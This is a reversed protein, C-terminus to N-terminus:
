KGGKTELYLNLYIVLEELTKVKPVDIGKNRLENAFELLRPPELKNEYLFNTDNLVEYTEGDKVIKGDKFLLVRKTVSLVNDLDHTVIVVTKGQENLANFINLIEKVGAPDLGATPEDAVIVDPEMALIGALAVRRKQGGSLGFPSKELYSEDLGVLKLYKKAREYAEEKKVGFSMPGFAIDQKITESFLQYEAFQFIIGVRKRLDKSKKVKTRFNTEFITKKYTKGFRKKEIEIPYKKRLSFSDIFKINEKTKKNFKENQFVWEISGSNPLLLANLHEIFTTKGSGTQGIVGVYEGQNIQVSVDDLAKTELPTKKDFIHILNNINIQM